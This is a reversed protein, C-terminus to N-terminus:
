QQQVQVSVDLGEQAHGFTMGSVPAADLYDLGTAVAVYKEDPSIANSVDFGVWGLGEVYAEAWAHSADQQVRDTMMLYGSVYRAPFGLLRACTIFVHTHDQCVGHGAAAAEEATTQAHTQGTEYAIEAGILEMLGHLRAVDDEFDAGLGRALKRLTPGPATLPTKRNYLWLPTWGAHEGVIGAQDHTEVEGVARFVLERAGEEISILQTSNNFQDIFAVEEKGGELEIRWSVVEQGRRTKPTLRLQQLAYSVPEAFQYRTQHAIKLRM